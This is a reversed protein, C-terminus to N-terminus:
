ESKAERKAASRQAARRILIQSGQDLWVAGITVIGIFLLQAFSGVGMLALGNTLLSLLIAGLLTGVITGRGGALSAGGIVVAAVVSFQLSGAQRPGVSGVYSFDVIGALGAMLGSILFVLLKYKVIPLRAIRAAEANGGIAALRFGFVTRHRIFWFLLFSAVLWLTASPINWLLPAQGIAKFISLEWEPPAPDSYAPTFTQANSILLQLGEAVNLMGLTVIFSPLRAKVVFWGNLLGVFAAIALSVLLAPILPLTFPLAGGGLWLTAMTISTLGYVSGVSLDIEGLLIILKQAFAIMALAVMSRLLTTLNNIGLFSDHQSQVFAAIVVIALVLGATRLGNIMNGPKLIALM